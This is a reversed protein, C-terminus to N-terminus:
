NKAPYKSNIVAEFAPTLIELTEKYTPIVVLHYYNDWEEPFDTKLRELWDIKKAKEMRNYGIFITVTYKLSSFLWYVDAVIILYAVAFPLTLSLWIPSTLAIWVLAGPLIELFREVLTEHKQVFDHELRESFVYNQSLLHHIIMGLGTAILFTAILPANSFGLFACVVGSIIVFLGILSHIKLKLLSLAVQSLYFSSLFGIIFVVLFRM